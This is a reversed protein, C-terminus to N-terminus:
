ETSKDTPAKRDTMLINERALQLCRSEIRHRLLCLLPKKSRPHLTVVQSLQSRMAKHLKQKLGEKFREFTRDSPRQISSPKGLVQGLTFKHRCSSRNWLADAVFVQKWCGLEDFQRFTDKQCLQRASSPEPDILWSSAAVSHIGFTVELGHAFWRDRLYHMYLLTLLVFSAAVLNLTESETQGWAEAM